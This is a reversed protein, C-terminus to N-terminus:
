FDIDEINIDLIHKIQKDKDSLTTPTTPKSSPKTPKSPKAEKKIWYGKKILGQVYPITYEQTNIMVVDLNKNVKVIFYENKTKKEIFVDGEKFYLDTEEEPENYPKYYGSKLGKKFDEPNFISTLGDFYVVGISDTQIFDIKFTLDKNNDTIFNDGVKYTQDPNQMDVIKTWRGDSILDKVEDLTYSLKDFAGKYSFEVWENQIDFIKLEKDRRKDYFTDFINIEVEQEPMEEDVVKVWDKRSVMLRCYQPTYQETSNDEYYVFITDDQVIEITLKQKYLESYYVDGVKFEDQPKQEEIKVFTGKAVVKELLGKPFLFENNETESYFEIVGDENIKTIKVYRDEQKDLFRDGVKYKSQSTNPKSPKDYSIPKIFSPLTTSTGGEDDPSETVEMLSEFLAPNLFTKKLDKKTLDYFRKYSEKLEDGLVNYLALFNDVLDANFDKGFLGDKALLNLEKTFEARNEESDKLSVLFNGLNKIDQPLPSEDMFFAIVFTQMALIYQKQYKENDYVIQPTVEVADLFGLQYAAFREALKKAEGDSFVEKEKPKEKPKIGKVQEIFTKTMEALPVAFSDKKKGEPSNAYLSQMGELLREADLINRTQGAEDIGLYTLIKGM